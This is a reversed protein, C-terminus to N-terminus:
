QGGKIQRWRDTPPAGAAVWDDIERRDFRVSGGLRICRPGFRGSSRLAFFHARSIGLYRATEDASLMLRDASVIRIHRKTNMAILLRM